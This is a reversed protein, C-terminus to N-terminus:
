YESCLLPCLVLLEQSRQKLHTTLFSKEASVQLWSLSCASFLSCRYSRAGLDAGRGRGRDELVVREKSQSGERSQGPGPSAGRWLARVHRWM